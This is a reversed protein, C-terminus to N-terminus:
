WPVGVRARRYRGPVHCATDTEGVIVLTPVSLASLRSELAFVPLRPALVRRAVHAVANPTNSTIMTRLRRRENQGRDAFESFIPNAMIVDAFGEIGANDAADAWSHVTQAFAQPDESGAGTDVLILGTLRAPHQLAFHLAINGGMSLGCITAQQIHLGDLFSLLDAVFLDQSYHPAEAPADSRNFGRLDFAITHAHEALAVMQPRWITFNTPYAHLFVLAPGSGASEYYLNIGNSHRLPM